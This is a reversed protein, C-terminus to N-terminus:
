GGPWVEHLKRWGADLSEPLVRTEGVSTMFNTDGGWRPLAHVHLHGPVGAGAAVGLNVGLNLGDCDYAAKIAQVARRQAYAMAVTEDDDLADLAAVHRRAAVLLHGSGYPYLNMVTLTRDTRELLLTAESIAGADPLSALTCLFCEEQEKGAIESV